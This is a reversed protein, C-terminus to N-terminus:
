RAMASRRESGTSKSLCKVKRQAHTPQKSRRLSSWQEPTPSGGRWNRGVFVALIVFLVMLVGLVVLCGILCSTWKSRKRQKETYESPEIEFRHDDAM